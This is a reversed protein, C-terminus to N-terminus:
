ADWLSSEQALQDLMGQLGMEIQGMLPDVHATRDRQPSVEIAEGVQIIVKFAGHLRVQDTLDEEYREITELLRDVSPREVLYDPPYCSVQQALYIDALQKWRRQREDGSIRQQVMEPLIKMRLAKVRPVVAGQQPKGLWENELPQLLRDILGQLRQQVAGSQEGGFYEIEKLCLLALGVKHIRELMPLDRQPRWSFRHEIESLVEDV